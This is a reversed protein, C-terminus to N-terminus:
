LRDFADADQQSNWEALFMDLYALYPDTIVDREALSLGVVEGRRSQFADWTAKESSDPRLGPTPRGDAGDRMKRFLISQGDIVLRLPADQELDLIHKRLEPAGEIHKAWVANDRITISAM